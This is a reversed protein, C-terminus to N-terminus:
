KETVEYTGGFRRRGCIECDVKEDATAEVRRLKKGDAKMIAACKGCLAIQQPEKSRLKDFISM